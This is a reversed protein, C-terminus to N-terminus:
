LWRRHKFWAVMCGAMTVCATWFGIPYAWPYAWANHMEPMVQFNMGWVGALFTMPIFITSVIALVRMAENLRANLSELYVENLATALERYMELLEIVQVTHDYVDRLYIKTTDSLTPHDMRLLSQILERMPTVERRLVLMEHKLDHLDRFTDRDPRDILEDELRELTDGYSDLIPFCHDVVADLLAYVLFSADNLRLRSGPKFIRQRVADWVDGHTQQFTLVTNRGLFMALQECRLHAGVTELMRAVVFLRPPNHSDAPYPEVKPRTGASLLDEVALPHLQYKEALAQVVSPDTLGDVNIWRVRSWEPRHQLVFDEIDLISVIRVNDSCYDICSIYVRQEGTPMAALQEPEIGPATGPAPKHLRPVRRVLSGVFSRLSPPRPSGAATM